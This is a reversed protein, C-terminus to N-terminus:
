LAYVDPAVVTWRANGVVHKTTPSSATDTYLVDVAYEGLLAATETTSFMWYGIGSAQTTWTLDSTTDSSLKTDTLASATILRLRLSLLRTGVTMDVATGDQDVLTFPVNVTEGAVITLDNMSM